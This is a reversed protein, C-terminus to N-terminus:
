FSEDEFCLDFSSLSSEVSGNAAAPEGASMKVGNEIDQSYNEVAEYLESRMLAMGMEEKSEVNMVCDLWDYCSLGLGKLILKYLMLEEYWEEACVSELSTMLASTSREIERLNTEQKAIRNEIALTEEVGPSADQVPFDGRQGREGPINKTPSRERLVVDGQTVNGPSIGLWYCLNRKIYEFLEYQNERRGTKVLLFCELILVVLLNIIIFGGFFLATFVFVPGIIRNSNQLTHFDFHGMFLSFLSTFSSQLGNFQKLERSFLLYGSHVYAFFVTFFVVSYTALPKAVKGLTDQLFSLRRNFRLFKTVLLWSLFVMFAILNTLLKDMVVVTNFRISNERNGELSTLVKEILILRLFFVVICSLILLALCGQLVNWVCKFYGKRLRYLQKLERYTLMLFFLFLLIHNVVSFTDLIGGVAFLKTVEFDGQTKVGNSALVEYTLKGFCFLNLSPNYLDFKIIIERSKRNLWKQIQAFHMNKADGTDNSGRLDVFLTQATNTSSVKDDLTQYLRVSGILYFHGFVMNTNEGSFLKPDNSPPFIIDLFTKNTWTLLDSINSIQRFNVGVDNQEVLLDTMVKNIQFSMPNKSKYVVTSLCFLFVVYVGLEKLLAGTRLEKLRKNRATELDKKDPPKLHLIDDHNPLDSDNNDTNQLQHNVITQEHDTTDLDSSEPKKIILAVVIAMAFVKLPETILVDQVFSVTMSTLWQSSVVRGFQLGYLVLFFASVFCTSCLVFWIGYVYWYPIKFPTVSKETKERLKITANSIEVPDGLHKLSYESYSVKDGDEDLGDHYLYDNGSRRRIIKGFNTSKRRKFCCFFLEYFWWFRKGQRRAVLDDEAPKRELNRFMWVLGANVPVIVLASFIGVAVERLGLIFPGVVLSSETTNSVAGQYFMANALMTTYLLTLCCSLRQVMTFRSEVPRSLLSFWLHQDRLKSHITSNFLRKFQSIEDKCAPFLLKQVECHTNEVALWTENFFVYSKKDSLDRIVIKDLYWSPSVGTNDHWIQLYSIDGIFDRSSILFTDIASRQFCQRTPDYLVRPGLDEESGSVKISVHASTGANYVSGTHITVEYFYKDSSKNSSLATVGIKEADKRDRRRAYVFLILFVGLVTLVAILVVPNDSVDADFVFNFDIKNPSPFVEAGVSIKFTKKRSFEASRKHLRFHDNEGPQCVCHTRELTTLNGVKCGSTTWTGEEDELMLCKMWVVRLTYNKNNLVMDENWTVGLFYEQFEQSDTLNHLRDRSVVWTYQGSALEKATFEIKLGYEKSTPRQGISLFAHLSLNPDVDSFIIVLTSDVSTQNFKHFKLSNRANLIHTSSLGTNQPSTKVFINLPINRLDVYRGFSDRLNVRLINSTIKDSTTNYINSTTKLLDTVTLGLISNDTYNTNKVLYKTDELRVPLEGTTLNYEDNRMFCNLSRKTLKINYNDTKIVTLSDGALVQQLLVNNIGDLTQFTIEISNEQKRDAYIKTDNATISEEETVTNISTVLAAGIINSLVRHLSSGVKHVDRSTNALSEMVPITGFISKVVENQLGLSTEEPILTLVEYANSLGQVGNLDTFNTSTLIKGIQFRVKSNNAINQSSVNLNMVSCLSTVLAFVEGKDNSKAAAGIDQVANSYNVSSPPSVKVSHTTTTSFLQEDVVKVVVSLTFNKETSGVPLRILLSSQKGSTLYTQHDGSHAEILYTLPIDEDWWHSCSINFLTELAFGEKPTVSCRGDIPPKNVRLLYEVYGSIDSRLRWASCRLRYTAGIELINEIIAINAGLLGTSTKSHFDTLEQCSHVSGNCYHISWQYHLKTDLQCNLCKSQLLLRKSPDVTEKCNVVCRLDLSPIPGDFVFITQESHSRRNGEEIELRFVYEQNPNFKGSQVTVVSTNWIVDIGNRFCENLAVNTALSYITTALRCSWSFRLQKLINGLNQSRRGDLVLQSDWPVSRSIGGEIRAILPPRYIEFWTYNLGTINRLDRDKGIFGVRVRVKYVGTAFRSATILFQDTFHKSSNEHTRRKSSVLRGVTGFNWLFVSWDVVVTKAVHCTHTVHAHLVLEGSSRVTFPRHKSGGGTIKVMVSGCAEDWIFVKVSRTISSVNNWRTLTATYNMQKKYFHSYSSLYLHKRGCAPSGFMVSSNDGLDLKFCSSISANEVSIEFVTPDKFYAPQVVSLNLVLLSEEICLFRLCKEDLISSKIVVSVNGCGTKSFVNEVVSKNGFNENGIRWDYSVDHQNEEVEFKVVKKAPFFHNNEGLGKQFGSGNEFSIKLNNLEAHQLIEHNVLILQQTSVNNFIKATINFLGPNSYKHKDLCMLYKFNALSFVKTSNDGYNLLVSANSPPFNNVSLNLCVAINLPHRCRKEEAVFMQFGEVPHQVELVKSATLTILTVSNWLKLTVLYQGAIAYAHSITATTVNDGLYRARGNCEICYWCRTGKQLSLIFEVSQNIQIYSTPNMLYANNIPEDVDAHATVSVEGLKNRCIVIVNYTEVEHYLHSAIINVSPYSTIHTTNDGFDWECSFLNGEPIILHFKSINGLIAPVIKLSLNQLALIDEVVITTNLVAWMSSVHNFCTINVHYYGPRRFTHNAMIDSSTVSESDGFDFTCIVHSGHTFAREFVLESLTAIYLVETHNWDLLSVELGDIPVEIMASGSFSVNKRLPSSVVIELMYHRASTYTHSLNNGIFSDSIPPFQLLGGDGFYVYFTVNSGSSCRWALSIAEGFVVAIVPQKFYCNRIPNLIEIGSDVAFKSVSNTANLVIHYLGPYSYVHTITWNTSNVSKNDGFNWFYTVGTSNHHNVTLLVTSNTEGLKPVDITFSTLPRDITISLPLTESSRITYVGPVEYTHRIEFKLPERIYATLIHAGFHIRTSLKMQIKTKNQGRYELTVREPSKDEVFSLLGGDSSWGIVDDRQLKVCKKSPIIHYGLNPVDLIEESVMEYNLSINTTNDQSPVSTNQAGNLPVCLKRTLCYTEMINCKIVNRTTRKLYMEQTSENTQHPRYIQVRIKGPKTARLSWHTIEGAEVNLASTLVYTSHNTEPLGSPTVNVEPVPNHVHVPTDFYFSESTDDGYDFRVTGVGAHWEGGCVIENGPISARPCHFQASQFRDVVNLTREVTAKSGFSNRAVVQVVHQCTEVFVYSQSSSNSWASVFKDDLKFRFDVSSGVVSANFWTKSFLETKKGINMVLGVIGNERWYVNYYVVHDCVHSDGSEKCKETCYLDNVILSTNVERGCLCVRKDAIAAYQFRSSCATLCSLPTGDAPDLDGPIFRFDPHDNDERFCGIYDNAFLRSSFQFVLFLVFVTKFINPLM